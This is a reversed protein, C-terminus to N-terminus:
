IVAISHVSLDDAYIAESKIGNNVVLLCVERHWDYVTFRACQTSRL